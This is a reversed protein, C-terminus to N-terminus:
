SLRQILPECGPNLSAHAIALAVLQVISHAFFVQGTVTTIRYHEM